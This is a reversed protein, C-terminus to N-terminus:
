SEPEQTAIMEFIASFDRAGDGRIESMRRYMDTALAGLETATGTGAAAQQSLRLDKLMLDAAFGPRYGNNAPTSPVPGPVPCYSTLAWCQGSSRSAVDFLAQRSLGLGDALAFAESVAIMSIGLIMNNCIKAAQGAGSGGCHVITKGMLSLIPRARDFAAVEGGAMFTLTGARAGGVGGSVPADLAMQGAAGAMGHADRSSDVDVTSCDIVLTGPPLHPLVQAWVARMAAGTPLMTIVADMGRCAAALDAGVALGAARAADRASGSVDFGCLDIGGRALNLAMPLGMNGLGIFGIRATM